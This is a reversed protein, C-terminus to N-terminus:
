VHSWNKGKFILRIAHRSVGFAMGLSAPSLFGRHAKIQAVDDANLRANHNREGRPRSWPKTKSGHRDGRALCEPKTRSPHRDGRLYSTLAKVGRRGRADMDAINEAQTGERLHDPNCCGPNDCEHLTNFVPWRGLKLALAFRPARVHRQKRLRRDWIQYKGYGAKDDGCEWLWCGSNPEPIIKSWFKAVVREADCEVDQLCDQWRGLRLDASM